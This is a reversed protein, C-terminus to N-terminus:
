ERQWRNFIEYLNYNVNIINLIKGNASCIIVLSRTKKEVFLVNDQIMFALIIYVWYLINGLPGGNKAAAVNYFTLDPWKSLEKV